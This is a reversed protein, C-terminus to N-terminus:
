QLVNNYFTNCLHNDLNLKSSCNLKDNGSAGM